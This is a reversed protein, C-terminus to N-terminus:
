SSTHQMVMKGSSTDTVRLLVGQEAGLPVGALSGPSLPTGYWLSLEWGKRLLKARDLFADNQLEAEGRQACVCFCLAQFIM